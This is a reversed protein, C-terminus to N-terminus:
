PVVPPHALWARAEAVYYQCAMQDATRLTGSAVGARVRALLATMRDLHAQAASPTRAELDARMWRVSWDYADSSRSVGASLEALATDYVEHALAARSAPSSDQAQAVGGLALVVLASFAFLKM